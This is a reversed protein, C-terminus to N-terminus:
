VWLMCAEHYSQELLLWAEDLAIWNSRSMNIYTKKGISKSVKDVKLAPWCTATRLTVRTCFKTSAKVSGNFVLPGLWSSVKMSDISSNMTLWLGRGPEVLWWNNRFTHWATPVLINYQQLIDLIYVYIYIYIYICIYIYIYIYIYIHIYTYIYIYIYIYIHVHIYIYLIYYIYIYTIYICIQDHNARHSCRAWRLWGKCGSMKSTSIGM